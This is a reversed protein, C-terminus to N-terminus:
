DVTPTGLRPRSPKAAAEPEVDPATGLGGLDIRVAPRKPAGVPKRYDAREIESMPVGPSTPAPLQPIEITPKNEVHKPLLPPM